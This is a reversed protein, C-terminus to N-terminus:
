RDVAVQSPGVLAGTTGEFRGLFAWWGDTLPYERHRRLGILAGAAVFAWRRWVPYGHIRYVHAIGRGYARIKRRREATPLDTAEDIGGVCANSPAIWVFSRALPPHAMLCRLLLDTVEGAQWPSAAGTGISEDFGGVRRFLSLRLILGMEIVQWVSERDLPTGPPPLVLRPGSPGIVTVAAADADAVASRIAAISGDPFWTTDNPFMVFADDGQDAFEVGTNRGLSAGRASNTVLVPTGLRWSFETALAEVESFRGQATLVVRDRPLLQGELSRLLRRLPDVRGLTTVSLILPVSM